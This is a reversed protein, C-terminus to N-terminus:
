EKLRQPLKVGYEQAVRVARPSHPNAKIYRWLYDPMGEPPAGKLSIENTGTDKEIAKVEAEPVVRTEEPPIDGELTSNNSPLEEPKEPNKYINEPEEIEEIEELADEENIDENIDEAPGELSESNEESAEAEEKPEPPEERIEATEAPKPSSSSNEAKPSQSESVDEKLEDEEEERLIRAISVVKNGTDLKMIRVGQTNRGIESIGDVATRIIVGKSTISMIEDEICVQRTAVVFGNRETTKIDIVGQGGRNQLPYRDFPSRKGYGNETVTLLSTNEDVVVAGVVEDDAKLRIARVGMSNRGVARADTEKFRIAKGKKTSVLIENSGNTLLVRVLGDDERLNIAIIGGKRPRSYAQLDTKKILGKKTIMALYHGDNFESIKIAASIKEDPDLELLNVIAKGRAYRGEIPLQYVKLWHVQGKDTFFLMYDHTSAVFLKEVFDEEKTGMGQIGRGGRKQAKYTGVPLRKIYGQNTITVVMNERTILDEDELDDVSAGIDTRREDGFRAKIDILEDKILQLIKQADALVSKLWEIYKTLESYETELKERELGTLKQLRMDLIALAQKESLSFQEILGQKADDTGKSARILKIIADINDLAIRLGELIHARAESKALEFQCRRTIVDQRHKIFQEILGKLPLVVPRGEVLALNIIGFSSQMQTHKYLQNLVVDAQVSNKIEIVVRMGKRDSEDRLDSIGEIKKEKVLSAISSVLNAKNVMYPIEKVIIRERGKKEEIEAKARVKVSGRGTTYAQIIGTQGMITAGTPFDPGKIYQMLGQVDLAPDDIVAIIGDVVESLNHPPMNTAMGVAIGSSGNVLLNPFKSPLVSPEELTDDFNPVFDVTEKDIDSLLEEAIRAKRSETNHNIFGNAVFSHCDSDVRISYVKHVGNEEINTVKQFLYHNKLLHEFLLSYDSYTEHLLINNVKKHKNQMNPYRDFNQKNLYTSKSLSRIYEAVFPVLDTQSFDKKYNLITYELASNKRKYLFGLEKYFRLMDSKSRIYIKHISRHSDFRRASSVGFRLLLIQIEKMLEESASCCGLEIMKQTSTTITGDGEFYARLFISAIGKPSQLITPPITKDKSKVASLGINRLFELTHRYHCELRTYQLKGYSSPNRTFSHLTSDPFVRKWRTQFESIWEQDTNCFELKKTSVNGESVISGLLFALDENLTKPLITKKTTSKIKPYYPSLIVESEPWLKDATRDLVLYDGEMINEIIKWFFKPKGTKEDRTLTLLPHNYSGAISYGRDTTIKKTPHKGSDFWKSAHNVTGDKSLIQIDIDETKSLEGIPLLGKNTAIKTDGTVCYRMAAASDGDVSGFNGQGDVLPYRLSFDQAMRVMSDYVATDGHPHYKGLVEGVVRASKKYAKNYHLGLDNMAFLIRRHVPKLGDRADPLARGVIVSMSYDLYSEKMEDELPRPIINKAVQALATEEDLSEQAPSDIQPAEETGEIKSEETAPETPVEEEFDKATEDEAMM